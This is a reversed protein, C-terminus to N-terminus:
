ASGLSGGHGHSSGADGQGPQGSGAWAALWALLGQHAMELHALRQEAAALQAKCAALENQLAPVRPDEVAAMEMETEDFVLAAIDAGLPLLSGPAHFAPALVPPLPDPDDRNDNNNPIATAATAARHRPSSPTVLAHELKALEEMGWSADDDDDYDDDDGLAADMAAVVEQEQTPQTAQEEQGEFSAAAAAGGAQQQPPPQQQQAEAQWFLLWARAKTDDATPAPTPHAAFHEALENAWM